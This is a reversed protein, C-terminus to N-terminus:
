RKVKRNLQLGEQGHYTLLLTGVAACDEFLDFIVKEEGPWPYAFIIDFDDPDLELEAYGDPGSTSLWTVGGTWDLHPEAGHPVFSGLAFQTDIDHDHALDEAIAVLAPEIEIGYANYGALVALCTVAGIGSGWEVFRRGTALRAAKIQVLARYALEFDSPVFAPISARTEDELRDVRRQADALLRAVNAPAANDTLTLDIEILRM